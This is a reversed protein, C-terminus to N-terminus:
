EGPVWTVNCGCKYSTQTVVTDTLKSYEFYIDHFKMIVFTKCFVWMVFRYVSATFM